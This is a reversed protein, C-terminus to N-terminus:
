QWSEPPISRFKSAPIFIYLITEMNDVVIRGDIQKLLLQFLEMNLEFHPYENNLVPFSIKNKTSYLKITIKIEDNQINEISLSIKQPKHMEMVLYLQVFLEHIFLTLHQSNQISVPIPEAHEITIISRKTQFHTNEEFYSQFWQLLDILNVMEVYQDMKHIDYVSILSRIESILMDFQQASNNGLEFM